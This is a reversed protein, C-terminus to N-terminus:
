LCHATNNFDFQYARLKHLSPVGVTWQLCKFKKLLFLRCTKLLSCDRRLEPHVVGPMFLMRDRPFGCRRMRRRQLPLLKIETVENTSQVNHLGLKFQQIHTSSLGWTAYTALLDKGEIIYFSYVLIEDRRQTIIFEEGKKIILKGIKGHHMEGVIGLSKGWPNFHWLIKIMWSWTHLDGGLLSGSGRHRKEGVFSEVLWGLCVSAAPDSVSCSDNLVSVLCCAWLSANLHREYM